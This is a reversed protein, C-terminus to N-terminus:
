ARLVELEPVAQFAVEVLEEAPIEADLTVLKADLAMREVLRRARTTAGRVWTENQRSGRALRRAAFVEARGLLWLLTIQYGARRAAYLFGTYALRSGEGLVLEAPAADIWREAMPGINMALADTGSFNARRRGLELGVLNDAVLLLDHPVPGAGVQRECGATLGEMLTTKGAGPAGVMYLLSRRNM